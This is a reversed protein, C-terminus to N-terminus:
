TLGSAGLPPVSLEALGIGEVREVGTSRAAIDADAQRQDELRKQFRRM